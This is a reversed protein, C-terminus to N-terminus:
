GLQRRSMWLTVGALIVTVIGLGIPAAWSPRPNRETAEVTETQAQDMNPARDNNQWARVPAASDGEAAMDSDAAQPALPAEAITMEEQSEAKTGEAEAPPADTEDLRTHEPPRGVPEPGGMGDAAGDDTDAYEAAEDDTAAELPPEGGGGMGVEETGNPVPTGLPPEEGGGIGLEETNEPSQTGLLPETALELEQEREVVSEGTTEAQQTDPARMAAPEEVVAEVEVAETMPAELQEVTDGAEKELLVAAEPAAPRQTMMTPTIGRAMLTLGATVAFAAAAVSTAIRMLLLPRRREKPRPKPDDVMAQTLIYNRPPEQLPISQMLAVVQRMESVRRELDPDQSVAAEFAIQTKPALEGDLYASVDATSWTKRTM